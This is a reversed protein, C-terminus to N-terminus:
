SNHRAVVINRPNRHIVYYADPSLFGPTSLSIATNEDLEQVEEFLIAGEGLRFFELARENHVGKV